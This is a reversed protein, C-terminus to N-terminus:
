TLRIHESLVLHLLTLCLQFSLLVHLTHNSELTQAFEVIDLSRDGAIYGIFDGGRFVVLLDVVTTLFAAGLIVVMFLIYIPLLLSILNETLLHLYDYSLARSAVVYICM